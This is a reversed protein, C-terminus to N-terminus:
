LTSRANRTEIQILCSQCSSPRAKGQYRRARWGAAHPGRPLRALEPLHSGGPRRLGDSCAAAERTAPLWATPPLSHASLEAAVLSSACCLSHQILSGLDAAM